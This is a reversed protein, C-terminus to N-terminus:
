TNISSTAIRWWQRSRLVPHVPPTEPFGMEQFLQDYKRANRQRGATWEDLHPLKASVVAAQLADLRFNGGVVKHYYKPKSGHARLCKLKESRQADNTVIMGWRRRRRPKQFPFVFFLWLTRDFRRAARARRALRKRPTKSSLWGHKESIAMVADMDAM